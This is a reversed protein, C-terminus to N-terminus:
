AEDLNFFILPFPWEKGGELVLTVWCDMVKTITGVQEYPYWPQPATVQKEGRKILPLLWSSESRRRVKVRLGVKLKRDDM